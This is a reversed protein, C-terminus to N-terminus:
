SMPPTETVKGGPEEPESEKEDEPTSGWALALLGVGATV